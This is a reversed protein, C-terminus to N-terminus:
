GNSLSRYRSQPLKKSLSLTTGNGSISKIELTAQIEKARRKISDLGNGKVIENEDFGNGNDSISLQVRGNQLNFSITVETANSHKQINHIVEKFILYLNRRITALLKYNMMEPSIDDEFVVKKDYLLEQAAAKCKLVLDQISEKQPDILWIISDLSSALNRANNTMRELLEPKTTGDDMQRKLLDGTLAIGSLGSGIEDHLDGAIRLRVREVELLQRVRFRYLSWIIGLLTVTILLRFWITQWFPPQVTIAISRGKENWVGDNNSGIVKFTYDGAPLRVYRATRNEKTQVVDPDYGVLQFQYLNQSSNTYNLATFDIEFTNHEWELEIRNRGYIPIRYSSNAMIVEFRTLEVDPEVPNLQIGSPDFYTIGSMSGAIIKGSKSTLISRRNFEPNIIGDNAGFIQAEETAPDFRVLGRDTGLWLMGNFEETISFIISSNGIASNQHHIPERGELYSFLGSNSGIWITGNKSQYLDWVSSQIFKTNSKNGWGFKEIGTTSTYTFMGHGETAILLRDKLVLIDQVLAGFFGEEFPIKEQIKLTKIDILYIQSYGGLWAMGNEAESISFIVPLGNEVIPLPSRVTNRKKSDYLLLGDETGLWVSNESGDFTQVAWIKDSEGELNVDLTKEFNQDGDFHYLSLGEDFYNIWVGEKSEALGMVMRLESGNEIRQFSKRQGNIHFLGSVTGVWIGGVKDEFISKINGTLINSAEGLSFIQFSTSSEEKVFLGQETGIWHRGKSDELFRRVGHGNYSFSLETWEPMAGNFDETHYWFLKREEGSYLGFTLPQVILSHEQVTQGSISYSSLQGLVDIIWIRDQNDMEIQLLTSPFKVESFSKLVPDFSFLRGQVVMWFRNASDIVVFQIDSFSVDFKAPIPFRVFEESKRDFLNLGERTGIWLNNNEDEFVTRVINSSITTSDFPSHHFNKFTYADFRNLGNETAVWIFGQYDQYVDYVINSSLGSQTDFYNLDFNQVQFLALVGILFSFVM